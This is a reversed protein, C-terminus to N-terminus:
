PEVSGDTVRLACWFKVVRAVEYWNDQGDLLSELLFGLGNADGREIYYDLVVQAARREEPLNLAEVALTYTRADFWEAYQAAKALDQNGNKLEHRWLYKVMNAAIAPMYRIVEVCEVGTPHSTYHTPHAVPNNAMQM